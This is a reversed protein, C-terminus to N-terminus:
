EEMRKRLMKTPGTVVQNKQETIKDIEARKEADSLSEDALIRNQRARLKELRDGIAQVPGRLAILKRNEELYERAREPNNKLSNYSDYAFMVKDRVQYYDAVRQSGEPNYFATGIEPYQSLKLEPRENGSIGEAILNTTALVDRGMTGFVGNIFNDIKIPSVNVVNGGVAQLSNSIFKALESTQGEVFRLNVDRAMLSQGVLARDNFFSYNTMNELLPRLVSPTVDDVGLLLGGISSAVAHGLKRDTYFEADIAKRTLQEMGAKILMYEPAVPIRLPIGGANILFNRNRQEDSAEEYDDDGARMMAYAASLTAMKLIKMALLQKAKAKPLGPIKGQLAEVLRWESQLKTNIFPITSLLARIAPSTGRHQYNLMMQARLAAEGQSYKEGTAPNIENLANEYVIARAAMDSNQALKEMYELKKYAKEFISKNAPERGFLEDIANEFSDQYEVAGIVGRSRLERALRTESDRKANKAQERISQGLMKHFPQNTGSQMWGREVDQWVQRYIFSPTLTIGKRLIGGLFRMQNVAWNNIVPVARLMAMDNPDDFKFFKLEGDRLYAITQEDNPNKVKVHKGGGMEEVQDILLNTTHNFIAKKYLWMENLAINTMIDAVDYNKTDFQLKQQQKSSLLGQMFIGDAGESDKIRYLPVYELRNMLTDAEKRTYAGSQVLFDVKNKRMANYRNRWQDYLSKHKERLAYGEAADEKSFEDTSKAGIMKLSKYRDALIMNAIQQYATAESTGDAQLAKMLADYDKNLNVINADSDISKIFGQKEIELGGRKIAEFSYNNSNLSHQGMLSGLLRGTSKTYFGEPGYYATAKRHITFLPGVIANGMRNFFEDRGKSMGMNDQMKEKMTQRQPPPRVTLGRARRAASEEPSLELAPNRALSTLIEPENPTKYRNKADPIIQEILLETADKSKMGSAILRDIIGDEVRVIAAHAIRSNYKAEEGRHKKYSKYLRDVGDAIIGEPTTLDNPKSSAMVASGVQEEFTQVAGMELRAAGYLMDVVDKDTIKEPNLNLKKIANTISNWLETIWGTAKGFEPKAKAGPRVGNFVAIEGFYAIVEKDNQSQGEAMEIAQKAMAVEKASGKGEAMQRVRNALQKVRDKGILNDLGKHEGIEHLFVGLENGKTINKIFFYAKGDPTFLAKATSYKEKIADSLDSDNIDGDVINVMGSKIANKYWVPNFWQSVKEAFLESTTPETSEERLKGSVDKPKAGTKAKPKAKRSELTSNRRNEKQIDNIAGDLYMGIAENETDFGSNKGNNIWNATASDVALELTKYNAYTFDSLDYQSLIKKVDPYSLENSTKLLQQIRAEENIPKAKRSEFYQDNEDYPENVLDDYSVMDEDPAANEQVAADVMSKMKQVKTRAEKVWNGYEKPNTPLSQKFSEFDAVFNDDLDVPAKADQAAWYAEVERIADVAEKITRIPKADEKYTLASPQVEESTEARVEPRGTTRGVDGLPRTVAAETKAVDTEGSPSPMADRKNVRKPQTQNVGSTDPTGRLAAATPKGFQTFLKGQGAPIPENTTDEEAPLGLAERRQQEERKAQEDLLSESYTRARGKDAKQRALYFKEAEIQQQEAKYKAEEALQAEEWQALPTELDVTPYAEDPINPKEQRAREQELFEQAAKNGTLADRVLPDNGYIALEKERAKIAQSVRRLEAVEDKQSKGLQLKELTEPHADIADVLKQEALDFKKQVYKNTQGPQETRLDTLASKLKELPVNALEPESTVGFQKQFSDQVDALATYEIDTDSLKAAKTEAKKTDNLQQQLMKRLAAGDEKKAFYFYNDFNALLDKVGEASETKAFMGPVDYKVAEQILGQREKVKTQQAQYDAAEKSIQAEIGAKGALDAAREEGAYQAQQAGTKTEALIADQRAREASSAALAAQRQQSQEEVQGRAGSVDGVRGLVGMPGSLATQYATQQYEAIADDDTLPLGAQLRELMQQTVETPTELIVGKATGKGITKLLSEKALKEAAETGLRATPIGLLKGFIAKDTIFDLGAQPIAAGYAAAANVPKGESVQREINSGSQALFSPLIAGGIGGIVGGAPGGLMTGAIAGTRAGAATAALNPAQEAIATPIQSLGEGISSLYNGENWLAKTKEFDSGSRETIGQQRTLGAEGAEQAGGIGTVGTLISSGLRKAGGKLAEGITVDKQEVKPPQRIESIINALETADAINGAADARELAEYLEKLTAM